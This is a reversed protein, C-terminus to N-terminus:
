FLCMGAERTTQYIRRKQRKFFFRILIKNKRDLSLAVTFSVILLIYAHLWFDGVCYMNMMPIWVKTRLDLLKLLDLLILLDLLLTSFLKLDILWGILLQLEVKCVERRM